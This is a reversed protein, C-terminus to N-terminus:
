NTISLNFSFFSTYFFGRSASQPKTAELHSDTHAIWRHPSQRLIPIPARKSTACSLREKSRKWRYSSHLYRCLCLPSYTFDLIIHRTGEAKKKSLPIPNNLPRSTYSLLSPFNLLSNRQRPSSGLRNPTACIVWSGGIQTPQLDSQSM